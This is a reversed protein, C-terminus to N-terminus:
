ACNHWEEFNSMFGCACQYYGYRTYNVGGAMSELRDAPLVQPKIPRRTPKRQM